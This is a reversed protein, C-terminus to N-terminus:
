AAFGSRRSMEGYSAIFQRALTPHARKNLLPSLRQYPAARTRTPMRRDTTCAMIHAHALGALTVGEADLGRQHIRQTQRKKAVVM